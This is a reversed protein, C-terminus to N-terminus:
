IRNLTDSIEIMSIRDNPHSRKYFITEHFAINYTNNKNATEKEVETEKPSNVGHDIGAM